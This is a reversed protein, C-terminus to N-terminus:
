FVAQRRRHRDFSLGCAAIAIERLRDRLPMVDAVCQPESPVSTKHGRKGSSM